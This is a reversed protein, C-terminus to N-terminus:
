GVNAEDEPQDPQSHVMISRSAAYPPSGDAATKNHTKQSADALKKELSWLMKKAASHTALNKPNKIDALRSNLAAPMAADDTNVLGNIALNGVGFRKKTHEFQYRNSNNLILTASNLIARKIQASSDQADKDAKTDIAPASTPTQNSQRSLGSALNTEDPKETDLTILNEDVGSAADDADIRERREKSQLAMDRLKALFPDSAIADKSEDKEKSFAAERRQKTANLLTWARPAKDIVAISYQVDWKDHKTFPNSPAKVSKGNVFSQTTLVLGLVPGAAQDKDEEIKGLMNSDGSASTDIDPSAVSDVVSNESLYDSTVDGEVNVPQPPKSKAAEQSPGKIHSEMGMIDREWKEIKEKNTTQISNADAETVPEAFIYMFPNTADRAEFHLRISQNPFRATAKDFVNNMIKLSTFFEQDGLTTDSQGHLAEDMENLSVYQFGFIRRINHYAVLIGDMRGMRVQLSYKLMTSRMMDYYEREYSTWDGTRSWIEWDMAWEFDSVSFRIPSVARTKLDYVGTGPLRSDHADLQSRLLFDGLTSYHYAEPAERVEDTLRHSNGKRHLEFQEKGVTLLKEMFKGMLSLVNPSDYQKDADVAYTGNKYRLFIADPARSLVTFTQLSPKFSRSLNNLNLPRWRSLLLHFHKLAGTMSSTSGIYRKGARKATQELFNDKSPAVFTSLSDFDFDKISMLEQISPDFNYVRSRQDRVEYVGPNFLVKDLGHKVKPIPPHKIDLVDLNLENAHVTDQALSQESFSGISRKLSTGMSELTKGEDPKIQKKINPTKVFPRWRGTSNSKKRAKIPPYPTKANLEGVQYVTEGAQELLSQIDQAAAKKVVCVMGLGTNFTKAFENAEMRGEEKLWQLVRPVPWSGVNLRGSLHEPLMRPVNETLGGGTIHSLGILASGSDRQSSQDLAYKVSAVYVLTPTLLAQGLTKSADWPAPSSYSLASREVIKRVLSFGNSHAGSSALGLLVDGAEMAEKRPLIRRRNPLAGIACGAADFDGKRYIGPMEATEGGVLACQSQKCGEIVGNVFSECDEVVLRSCAYYDLFILPEAGQVILDNVNMAVLDIGITSYDNMAIAVMIKTGIGDIAGIITPADAGFGADRLSFEGGFGGIQADAGSRATEKVRAKIANVLANGRDVSVGASDYSLSSKQELSGPLKHRRSLERGAIDRRFHMRDFHICDIGKYALDVASQIDPGLATSAIVRGGNTKHTKAQADFTTGAHFLIADANTEHLSMPTGKEYKAPYGGAAVVVTTSYGPKIQLKISNLCHETCRLMIEALDTDLLPLLTQCEPDGFRVNYELLKPGDKTLMYGTFLCGLFPAREKATGEITPRLVDNHIQRMVDPSACQVPAYCGMGGTNPGQDNDDIRKHDQAAPLSLITHGDSFSLISIEEGELYEEIVVEDGAAGFEHELMISRLAAMAEERNQPMIVGKGAALGSAKIVVRDELPRSQLYAGATEFSTFTEYDATPIRHRKMFNKAYAKDGELRAAAKSPGFCAIRAPGHERFHDVIGTVLPDEPGPILLNVDEQMAFALLRNFDSAPVDPMNRTKPVLATGGNGPVAFIRSVLPSYALKWALAHERGGSGVLLINLSM